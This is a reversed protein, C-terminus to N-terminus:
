RGIRQDEARSREVSPTCQRLKTRTRRHSIGGSRYADRVIKEILIAAALDSRDQNNKLMTDLAAFQSARDDLKKTEFFNAGFSSV